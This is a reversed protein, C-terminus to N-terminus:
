RRTLLHSNVDQNINYLYDEAIQKITTEDSEFHPTSINRLKHKANTLANQIRTVYSTARYPYYPEIKGNNISVQIGILQEMNQVLADFERQMHTRYPYLKLISDHAVSDMKINPYKDIPFENSPQQPQHQPTTNNTNNGNTSGGSSSYYTKAVGIIGGVVTGYLMFYLGNVIYPSTM